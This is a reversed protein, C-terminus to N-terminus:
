LNENKWAIEIWVFPDKIGFFSTTEAFFQIRDGEEVDVDIGTDHGGAANTVALSVINDLDGNKRVRLTWTEDDRTQAAIATITAKRPMRYGTLNCSQGDMLRLYANKARGKRGASAIIRHSGLWKGRTDDYVFVDGDDMVVPPLSVRFVTSKAM